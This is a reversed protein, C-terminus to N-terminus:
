SCKLSNQTFELSQQVHLDWSILLTVSIVNKLHKIHATFLLYLSFHKLQIQMIKCM